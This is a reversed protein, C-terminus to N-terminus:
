QRGIRAGAVCCGRRGLPDGRRRWRSAPWVLGPYAFEFCQCRQGLHVFRAGLAEFPLSPSCMRCMGLWRRRRALVSGQVRAEEKGERRVSLSTGTMPSRCSVTPRKRRPHHKECKMPVDKLWLGTLGAGASWSSAVNLTGKVAVGDCPVYWSSPGAVVATSFARSQSRGTSCAWLLCGSGGRWM